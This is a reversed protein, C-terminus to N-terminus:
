LAMVVGTSSANMPTEITSIGIRCKRSGQRVTCIMANATLMQPRSQITPRSAATRPCGWRTWSSPMRIREPNVTSANTGQDATASTRVRLRGSSFLLPTCNSSVASPPRIPM